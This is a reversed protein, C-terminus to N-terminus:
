PRNKEIGCGEVFSDPHALAGGVVSNLDADTLEKPEAQVFNEKGNPQKLAENKSEKKSM